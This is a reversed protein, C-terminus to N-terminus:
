RREKHKNASTEAYEKEQLSFNCARGPANTIAINLEGQERVGVPLTQDRRKSRSKNGAVLRVADAGAKVTYRHEIV